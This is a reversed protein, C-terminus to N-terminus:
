QGHAPDLHDCVEADILANLLSQCSNSRSQSIIWVLSFGRLGNKPNFPALIRPAPIRMMWRFAM